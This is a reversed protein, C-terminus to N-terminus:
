PAQGRAEVDLGGFPQKMRDLVCGWRHQRRLRGPQHPADAAPTPGATPEPGLPYDLCVTHEGTSATFCM